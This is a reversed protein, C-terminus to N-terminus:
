ATPNNAPPKLRGDNVGLNSPIKGKLLGLQGAALLMVLLGAVLVVVLKLATVM